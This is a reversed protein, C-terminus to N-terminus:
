PRLAVGGRPGSCGSCAACAAAYVTGGRRVACAAGDAYESRCAALIPVDPYAQAAHSPACRLPQPSGGRLPLTSTQRPSGRIRPTATEPPKRRIAPAENRAANRRWVGSMSGSPRNERMRGESFSERKRGRSPPRGDPWAVLGLVDHLHRDPWTRTGPGRVKHKVGLWQRLRQRVHADLARYAPSVPGHCFYNAWGALLRNLEAVKETVPQCTTRRDTRAHIEGRLRAIAKKSPRMAVYSRGTKPSWCRGFTYGLFDFTEDPVRCVRTKAENVTLKLTAMMRRMAALAKAGTGRCCIVFDDAYNVIRAGLRAEHGLAKWGAVFRRIYINAM